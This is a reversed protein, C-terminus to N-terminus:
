KISTPDQRVHSSNGVSGECTLWMMGPVLKPESVMNPRSLDYLRM